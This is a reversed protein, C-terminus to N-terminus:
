PHGTFFTAHLPAPDARSCSMGLITAMVFSITSATPNGTVTFVRKPHSSLVLFITSTASRKCSMPIEANLMCPRVRCWIYLPSASQVKIPSTFFLWRM